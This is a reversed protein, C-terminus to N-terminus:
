NLQTRGDTWRVISLLILVKVAASGFPILNPWTISTIDRFVQRLGCYTYINHTGTLNQSSRVLDM